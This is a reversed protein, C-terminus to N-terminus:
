TIWYNHASKFTQETALTQDSAIMSLAILVTMDVACAYYLISGVICQVNCIGKKDLPPYVDTPLPAQAEM